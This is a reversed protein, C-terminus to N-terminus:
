KMKLFKMEVNEGYEVNTNSGKVDDDTNFRDACTQGLVHTRFSFM